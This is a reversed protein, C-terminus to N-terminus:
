YKAQFFYLFCKRKQFILLRSSLSAPNSTQSTPPLHFKSGGAGLPGRLGWRSRTRASAGTPEWVVGMRGRPPADEQASSGEVRGLHNM